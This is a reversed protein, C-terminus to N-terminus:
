YLLYCSSIRLPSPIMIYLPPPPSPVFSVFITAAVFFLLSLLLANSLALIEDVLFLLNGLMLVYGFIYYITLSTFSILIPHWSINLFVLLFCEFM